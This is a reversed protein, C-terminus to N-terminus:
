SLRRQCKSNGLEGEIKSCSYVLANEEFKKMVFRWAETSIAWYSNITRKRFLYDNDSGLKKQYEELPGTANYYAMFTLVIPPFIAM